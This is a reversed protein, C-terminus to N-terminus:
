YGTLMSNVVTVSQWRCYAATPSQRCCFIAAQQSLQQWNDATTPSERKVRRWTFSWRPKEAKDNGHDISESPYQDGQIV